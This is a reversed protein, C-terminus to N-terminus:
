IPQIGALMSIMYFVQNAPQQLFQNLTPTLPQSLHKNVIHNHKQKLHRLLNSTSGSKKDKTIEARCWFFCSQNIAFTQELFCITLDSKGVGKWKACSSIWQKTLNSTNTPLHNTQDFQSGWLWQHGLQGWVPDKHPHLQAAIVVAAKQKMRMTTWKYNRLLINSVQSRNAILQCLILLCQIIKNSEFHLFKLTGKSKTLCRSENLAVVLRCSILFSMYENTRQTLRIICVFQMQTRIQIGKPKM